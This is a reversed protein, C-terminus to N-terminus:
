PLAAGSAARMLAICASVSIAILTVDLTATPVQDSARRGSIYRDGLATKHFGMLCKDRRKTAERARPEASVSM